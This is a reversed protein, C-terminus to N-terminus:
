YFEIYDDENVIGRFEEGLKLKFIVKENKDKVENESNTFFTNDSEKAILSRRTELSPIQSLFIDYDEKKAFFDCKKIGARVLQESTIGEDYLNRLRNCGIHNRQEMKQNINLNNIMFQSVWTTIRRQSTDKCIRILSEYIDVLSMLHLLNYVEAAMTITACKKGLMEWQKIRKVASDEDIIKIPDTNLEVTIESVLSENSICMTDNLLPENLLIERLQKGKKLLIMQHGNLADQSSSQQIKSPHENNLDDSGKRKNITM